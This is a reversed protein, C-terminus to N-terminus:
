RGALREGTGAKAQSQPGPDGKGRSGSTHDSGAGGADPRSAEWCGERLVPGDFLLVLRDIVSKLERANGPWRYAQMRQLLPPEVFEVNKGFRENALRLFIQVLGPIDEPRERLSPTNLVIEALRFYLDARFRKDNAEERLNRNTAAIIRARSRYERENGVRRATRTELFRLLKPQLAIDMEGIEDLFLTGDAAQEVLGSRSKLAGTFAGKEVGFLEAELLDKPIAACNLAVFNKRHSAEHLAQAVREKGSGSEGLILVNVDTAGLKEVAQRLARMAASQGSLVEGASATAGGYLQLWVKQSEAARNLAKRWREDDDREDLVDAAGDRVAEMLQASALAVGAVIFQRNAQALKVRLLLWDRRSLEEFPILYVLDVSDSTLEQVQQPNLAFVPVGLSETRARLDHAGPSELFGIRM